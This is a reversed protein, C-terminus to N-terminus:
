GQARPGPDPPSSGVASDPVSSGSQPWPVSVPMTFMSLGPCRGVLPPGVDPYLPHCPGTGNWGECTLQLLALGPSQSSLRSRAFIPARRMSGWPASTCNSGHPLSPLFSVLRPSTPPVLPCQVGMGPRQTVAQEQSVPFPELVKKSAGVEDSGAEM